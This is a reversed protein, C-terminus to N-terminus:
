VQEKIGYQQVLDMIVSKLEEKKNKLVLAWLMKGQAETLEYTLRWLQDNNYEGMLSMRKLLRSRENLDM